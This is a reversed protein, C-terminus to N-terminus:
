LGDGALQFRLPVRPGKRGTVQDLSFSVDWVRGEDSGTFTLKSIEAEEIPLARMWGCVVNSANYFLVVDHEQPFEIDTQLEHINSVGPWPVAAGATASEAVAEAAPDAKDDSKKRKSEKEADRKAKQLDKWAKSEGEAKWALTYEGPPMRIMALDLSQVKAARQEETEEPLARAAAVESEDWMDPMSLAESTVLVGLVVPDDVSDRRLKSLPSGREPGRHAFALHRYGTIIRAEDDYYHLERGFLDDEALAGPKNLKPPLLRRLGHRISELANRSSRATRFGISADSEAPNKGLRVDIRAFARTSTFSGGKLVKFTSNFSPMLDVSKKGSGFPVSKYGPFATFPSDVWEWVNGILDLVGYPSAGDKLRGVPTAGLNPTTMGTICRATEWKDGWTFERTDDGRAARTWEFETPLRRGSWVLYENIEAISVITIPFQEQGAPIIGDPWGFEVLTASPKRKTADLFTKWQLNTVETVDIYFDELEVVHRPTEAAIDTMSQLDRGGLSEVRSVETGVHVKGGPILVMGPPPSSKDAAENAQRLVVRVDSGAAPPTSPNLLPAAQPALWAPLAASALAVVVNCIVIPQTEM